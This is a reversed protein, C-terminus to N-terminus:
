LMSNNRDSNLAMQQAAMNKLSARPAMSMRIRDPGINGTGFLSKLDNDAMFNESEDPAIASINPGMTDRRDIAISKQVM